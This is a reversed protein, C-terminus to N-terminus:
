QQPNTKTFYSLDHAKLHTLTNPGENFILDLISLNPLFGHSAELVQTYPVAEFPTPRKANVLRRLDHVDEPNEEYKLTTSAEAKFGIIETLFEFIKFNFNMLNTVPETFLPLIDDEYFEFFPSTRYATQISKLHQKQWNVATEVQVGHTKQRIGSIHKVPINLLLKGNSHAIYTRNRYTQKQYNDHIEWVIKDANVIHCMTEISPFYTPHLLITNMM